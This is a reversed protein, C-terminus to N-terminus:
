RKGEGEGAGAGAGDGDGTVTVRVWAGLVAWSLTSIEILSCVIESLSRRLFLSFDFHTGAEDWDRLQFADCFVKRRPSLSSVPSLSLSLLTLALPSPLHSPPPYM